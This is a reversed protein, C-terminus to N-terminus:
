IDGIKQYEWIELNELSDYKELNELKGIKWIQDFKNYVPFTILCVGNKYIANILSNMTTIRAYHKITHQKAEDYLEEDWDNTNNVDKYPCSKEYCVGIKTLIKMVDRGYMGEDNHKNEDKNNQRHSYFFKPSFYEQFNYDKREQFEKMCCSSMAFCTGYKGQNRVPQLLPRHDIIKPLSSIDKNTFIWDRSDFPLKVANCLYENTVETM